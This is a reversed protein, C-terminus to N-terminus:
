GRLQTMEAILLIEIMERASLRCYLDLLLGRIFRWKDDDVSRAVWWQGFPEFM